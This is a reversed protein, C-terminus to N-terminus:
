RDYYALIIYYYITYYDYKTSTGNKLSEHLLGSWKPDTLKWDFQRYISITTSPHPFIYMVNDSIIYIKSCPLQRKLNWSSWELVSCLVPQSVLQRPWFSWRRIAFSRSFFPMLAGQVCGLKQRRTSRMLSPTQKHSQITDPIWKIQKPTGTNAHNEHTLISVHLPQM